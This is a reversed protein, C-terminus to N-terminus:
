IVYTSSNIYMISHLLFIPANHISSSKRIVEKVNFIQWFSNFDITLKNVLNPHAFCSRQPRRASDCDLFINATFYKKMEM